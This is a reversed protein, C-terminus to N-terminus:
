RQTRLALMSVGPADKKASLTVPASALFKQAKREAVARSAREARIQKLAQTVIGM